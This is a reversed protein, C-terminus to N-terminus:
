PRQLIARLYENKIWGPVQEVPHGSSEVFCRLEDSFKAFKKNDNAYWKRELEGSPLVSIIEFWPGGPLFPPDIGRELLLEALRREFVKPLKSTEYRDKPPATSRFPKREMFAHAGQVVVLSDDNPDQRNVVLYM